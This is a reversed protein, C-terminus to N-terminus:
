RLYWGLAGAVPSEVRCLSLFHHSSCKGAELERKEWHTVPALYSFSELAAIHLAPLSMLFHPPLWPLCIDLGRKM